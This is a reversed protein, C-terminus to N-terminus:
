ETIDDSDSLVDLDIDSSESTSENVNALYTCKFSECNVDDCQCNKSCIDCCLHNVIGECPISDYAGLLQRRRCIENNQVYKMMDEELKRLHRGNYILMQYSQTGDRGARGLQQIFADLDKPPGYHLINNLGKYNVGMGVPSTAILIRIKGNEKEMDERLADKVADTTCSHFMQVYEMREPVHIRFTSYVEACLKISPCFVIHRPINSCTPADSKLM